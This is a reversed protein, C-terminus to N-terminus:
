SFARVWPLMALTGSFFTVAGGIAPDAGSSNEGAIIYNSSTLSTSPSIAILNGSGLKDVRLMICYETGANIQVSSGLPIDINGTTNLAYNATRELITVQFNGSGTATVEGIFGRIGTGSGGTGTPSIFRITDVTVGAEAFDRRGYLRWTAPMTISQGQIADFTQIQNLVSTTPTIVAPPVYPLGDSGYIFTNNADSSPAPRLQTWSQKVINGTWGVPADGGDFGEYYLTGTGTFNITAEAGGISQIYVDHDLDITNGTIANFDVKGYYFCDNSGAFDIAGQLVLSYNPTGLIVKGNTGSDLTNDQVIIQEDLVIVNPQSWLLVDIFNAESTAHTTQNQLFADSATTSTVGSPSNGSAGHRLNPVGGFSGANNFQMQTNSGAPATPTDTNLTSTDIGVVCPTGASVPASFTDILVNFCNWLYNGNLLTNPDQVQAYYQNTNDNFNQIRFQSRNIITDFLNDLPTGDSDTPNFILWQVSIPAGLPTWLAFENNALVINEPDAEVGNSYGAYNFTLDTGLNVTPNSPTGGGGGKTVSGSKAQGPRFAM